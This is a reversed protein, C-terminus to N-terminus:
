GRRAAAALKSRLQEPNALLDLLYLYALLSIEPPVKGNHHALLGETSAVRSRRNSGFSHTANRLVTLYEAAAAEFKMPGGSLVVEDAGDQRAIFFGDQLLKLAEVARQAGPLLVEAAQAPLKKRLSELKEVAHSHTFMKKLEPGRVTQLSDLVNFMLARQADADRHAALLSTTRTFLQDITLQANLHKAPLYNGDEDSFVAMDTLVGFMLNLHEVWWQLAHSGDGETIKPLRPPASSGYIPLQQLLEASRNLTGAVFKGLTFLLQWEGGAFSISWLAPSAAGLMPGLYVDFLSAGRNLGVSSAFPREGGALIERLKAWSVDDSQELRLALQPLGWRYRLAKSPEVIYVGQSAGPARGALQTFLQEALAPLEASPSTALAVQYFEVLDVLAGSKAASELRALAGAFYPPENIALTPLAALEDWTPRSGKTPITRVWILSPRLEFYSECTQVYDGDRDSSLSYGAAALYGKPDNGGLWEPFKYRTRPVASM